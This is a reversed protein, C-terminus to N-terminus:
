EVWVDRRQGGRGRIGTERRGSAGMEAALESCRVDAGCDPETTPHVSRSVKASNDEEIKAVASSENLHREIWFPRRGIYELARALKAELSYDREFAFNGSTRGFHAVCLHFRAVDFHSRAIEPNDPRSLRGRDWHRASPPLFKGGLLQSELVSIEVKSPAVELLIENQTMLQLLGGAAEEVLAAVELDLRRNKRLRRRRSRAIIDNRAPYM